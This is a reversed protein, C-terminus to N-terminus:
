LRIRPYVSELKCCADDVTMQWDIGRQRVNLCESWAALEGQFTEQAPRSMGEQQPPFQAVPVVRTGVTHWRLSLSAACVWRLIM